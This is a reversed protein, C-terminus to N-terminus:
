EPVRTGLNWTATAPVGPTDALATIAGALENVSGAVMKASASLVLADTQRGLRDARIEATLERIAEILGVSM